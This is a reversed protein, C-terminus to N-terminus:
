QDDFRRSPGVQCGVTRRLEGRSVIDVMGAAVPSGLAEAEVVTVFCPRAVESMFFRLGCLLDGKATITSPFLCGFLALATEPSSPTQLSPEV